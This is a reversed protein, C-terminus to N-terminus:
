WFSTASHLANARSCRRVHGVTQNFGPQRDGREAVLKNLKANEFEL